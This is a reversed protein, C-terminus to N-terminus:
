LSVVPELASVPARPGVHIADVVRLVGAVRRCSERAVQKEHFSSLRGALTVVGDRASVKLRRFSLFSRSALYAAIRRELDSDAIPSTVGHTPVSM